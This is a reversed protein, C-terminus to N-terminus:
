RGTFNSVNLHITHDKDEPDIIGVIKWKVRRLMSSFEIEKAEPDNTFQLLSLCIPKIRASCKIKSRSGRM